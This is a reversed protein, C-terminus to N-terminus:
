DISTHIIAGNTEKIYQSISVNMVVKNKGGIYGADDVYFEFTVNAPYFARAQDKNQCNFQDVGEIIHELTNEVFDEIRM